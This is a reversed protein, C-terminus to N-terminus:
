NGSKVRRVLQRHLAQSVRRSVEQRNKCHCEWVTLVSWGERRLKNSQARDRKINTQIKTNWFGTRTKPLTMGKTCKRHGHWFCGHVFIAIASERLVVDPTGPLSADNREYPIQLEDLVECVCLEPGTGRTRISRMMQSRKTSPPPDTQM